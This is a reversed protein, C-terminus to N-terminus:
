HSNKNKFTFLYIIWVHFATFLCKLFNARCRKGYFALFCSLYNVNHHMVTPKLIHCSTSLLKLFSPLLIPIQSESVHGNLSPQMKRRVHSRVNRFYSLKTIAIM